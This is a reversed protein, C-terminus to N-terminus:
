FRLESADPGPGRAIVEKAWAVQEKQLERKEMYENQEMNTLRLATMLQNMQLQNGLIMGGINQQPAPQKETSGGTLTNLFYDGLM